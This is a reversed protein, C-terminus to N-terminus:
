ADGALAVLETLTPQHSRFARVDIQRLLLLSGALLIAELLFVTIYGSSPNGTAATVVDRLVGGLLMGAGRALADALGWAGIFLGVQEPTTMDLMLALNTSTAIGTGFGLAFIGPVFLPQMQLIGSAAILLLGATALLGGLLAGAKKSLWRSLLLGQLLLAILTAGGWTATLQTTEAVSMGFAQAGFPELLIDQGLIAALLLILYVFFRRAQANDMVARLAARQSARSQSAPLNGRPELGVLGLAAIGLAVLGGINFVRLLKAPDYQALARGTIIATIIISVIMMFWMIAITRSRQHEESLDSALSLYSVVALNYGVGWAGFALAGLLLGLPLNGPMLMAARPTLMTGGICLLLGLLIYPTRRYGAIPHTDSHQGVWVQLPSLFYPLVVLVAVLSALINLDHIMVRNLVGNILVFTIAVSVHLLGLRINKFISM